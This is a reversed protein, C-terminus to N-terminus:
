RGFGREEYEKFWLVKDKRITINTNNKEDFFIFFDKDLEQIFNGNFWWDKDSGLVCLNYKINTEMMIIM